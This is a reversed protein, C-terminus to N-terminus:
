KVQPLRLKEFARVMAALEVPAHTEIFASGGNMSPEEITEHLRFILSDVDALWQELTQYDDDFYLSM